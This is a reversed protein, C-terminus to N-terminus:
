FYFMISLISHIQIRFSIIIDKCVFFYYIPITELKRNKGFISMTNNQFDIDYWKLGCMESLRVGSSILTVIIACDRYAYFPKDRHKIRRYYNLVQTIHYDSFVDIRIDEKARKIKEAPNKELVEIEIMYNLFAKVRQLKSNTTTSNNGVKQYHLLYKKIVNSTIDQVNIVENEACFLQFQGLIDKYNSITTPSLNKFKRDDLFDQIAFKLLLFAVEGKNTFHSKQTTALKVVVM